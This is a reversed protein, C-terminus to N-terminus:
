LPCPCVRGPSWIEALLTKRCRERRSPPGSHSASAPQPPISAAPPRRVKTEPDRGLAYQRVACAALHDVARRTGTERLPEGPLAEWGQGRRLYFHRHQLESRPRSDPVSARTDRDRFYERRQSACGNVHRWTRYLFNGQRRRALATRHRWRALSAM